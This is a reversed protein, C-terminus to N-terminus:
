VLPRGQEAIHLEALLRDRVVVAARSRAEPEVGVPIRGGAIQDHGGALKSGLVRQLIEGANVDRETTRVSCHLCSEFVGIAAAWEV